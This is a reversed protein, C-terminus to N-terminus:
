SKAAPVGTNAMWLLQTAIKHLESIYALSINTSFRRKQGLGGRNPAVM